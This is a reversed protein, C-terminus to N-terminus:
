IKVEAELEMGTRLYAVKVLFYKVKKKFFVGDM